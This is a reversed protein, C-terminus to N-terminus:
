RSETSRAHRCAPSLGATAVSTSPWPVEVRTPSTASTSPSMDTKPAAPAAGPDIASPETFDFMPCRLAAAPAAPSNLAASARCWLTSGGLRFKAAGLGLMSKAAPGNRTLVSSRSHGVGGVPTRMAPTLANPKPPVLKWTTRSSYMGPRWRASVELVKAADAGAGAATLAAASGPGAM